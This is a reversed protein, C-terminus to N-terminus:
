TGIIKKIDFTTWILLRSTPMQQIHPNCEQLPKHKQLLIGAARTPQQAQQGVIEAAVQGQGVPGGDELRDGGGGVM